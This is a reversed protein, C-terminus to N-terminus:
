ERIQLPAPDVLGPPIPFLTAQVKRVFDPDPKVLDPHLIAPLAALGVLRNVSPPGLLAKYPEGADLVFKTGKPLAAHLPSTLAETEGLIVVTPKLAVVQDVSMHQFTGGGGAVVNRGGALRIAEDFSTGGRAATLGDQGRAMYVSVQNAEALGVVPAARDLVDKALNALVAGRGAVGLAGALTTATPGMAAFTGGFIVAPVGLEQQIKEDAAVFRASVTGYDVVIGPQLAKVTAVDGPADTRTLQPIQPLGAIAPMVYIAHEPPFPEILGSLLAPALSHLLVQAPAGAPVVSKIGSPVTVNRQAADVITEARAVGPASLALLCAAFASGAIASLSTGRGDYEQTSFM